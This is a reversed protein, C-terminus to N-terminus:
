GACRGPPGTCRGASTWGGDIAICRGRVTPLEVTHQVGAYEVAFSRVQAGHSKWGDRQAWPDKWGNADTRNALTQEAQLTHAVLAAAALPLGVKDQHFLAAAERPILATDM